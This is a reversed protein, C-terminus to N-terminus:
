RERITADIEDLYLRVVKARDFLNAVRERGRRGMEARESRSLALFRRTADVLADASKPAFGFGSAGEDFTEACGPVSSALLPRGTAAGELLVNSLGEHYSPLVVASARALEPKVDLKYGLYEVVGNKAAEAVRAYEKNCGREPAGLIRFKVDPREKRVREACELFEFIGKDRMLRGIFLLEISESEDPYPAVQFTTLDVGSGPTSVVRESRVMREAVVREAITGNQCFVRDAGALGVRYLGKSIRAVPGGGNLATGFGSITALYPTGLARCALGCYVNPKITFTLALDPRLKKLTRRYFSWLKLDRLPNLGRPDIPTPLIKAATAEFYDARFDEEFSLWVEDGRELLASVLERKFDYLVRAQNIALLIRM